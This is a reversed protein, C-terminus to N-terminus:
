SEEAFGEALVQSLRLSGNTSDFVCLGRYSGQGLPTSKAQFLGFGLDRHQIAFRECFSDLIAEASRASLACNEFYWCVGTTEFFRHLPRQSHPSDTGYNHTTRNPGRLEIFGTVRESVQMDAEAVFGTPSRHLQRLGTDLNPFVMVQSIPKTTYARERRVVVEGKRQLIHIVRYPRAMYYHVAGPYAERMLYAFSLSGLPEQQVSRVKFNQEVANRLPFEHQPSGAARQKLAYLDGPLGESPSLENALMERFTDPLSLITASSSMHHSLPVKRRAGDPKEPDYPADIWKM